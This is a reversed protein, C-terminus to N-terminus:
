TVVWYGFEFYAPVFHSSDELADGVANKAQEFTIPIREFIALEELGIAVSVPDQYNVWADRDEETFFVAIQNDFNSNGIKKFKAYYNQM